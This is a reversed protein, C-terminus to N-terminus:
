SMYRFNYSNGYVHDDLTIQVTVTSLNHDTHPSHVVHETLQPFPVLSLSLVHSSGAGSCPPSGQWPSSMSVRPHVMTSFQGPIHNSSMGMTRLVYVSFPNIYVYPHKTKVKESGYM